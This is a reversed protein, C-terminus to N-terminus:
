LWEHRWSKSATSFHLVKQPEYRLLLYHLWQTESKFLQREQVLLRLREETMPEILAPESPLLDLIDKLGRTGLWDIWEEEAAHRARMEEIRADIDNDTTM